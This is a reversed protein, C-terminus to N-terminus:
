LDGGARAILDDAVLRAKDVGIRRVVLDLADLFLAGDLAVRGDDYLDV